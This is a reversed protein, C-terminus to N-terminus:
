GIRDWCIYFQAETYVGKVTYSGICFKASPFSLNVMIIYMRTVLLITKTVGNIIHDNWKPLLNNTLIPVDRFRECIQDHSLTWIM